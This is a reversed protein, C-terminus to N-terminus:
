NLFLYQFQKSVPLRQSGIEIYVKRKAQKINIINSSNILYSRHSRIIEPFINLEQELLKLPKRILHQQQKNNFLYYISIYNESSNAYLFNQLKIKLQDKGNKSQFLIYDEKYTKQKTISKVFQYFSIPILVMLPFEKLILTYARINFEQWNWFFNFLIFIFQCGILVLVLYWVLLKKPSSTNFKPKVWTEFATLIICTLIGFCASRFLYSHGSYSVGKQIGYANFFYLFYFVLFGSTLGLFTPPLKFTLQNTKKHM